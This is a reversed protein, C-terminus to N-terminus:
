DNGGFYVGGLILKQSRIINNYTKVNNNYLITFYILCIIMFLSLYAFSLELYGIQVNNIVLIEVNVSATYFVGILAYGSGIVFFLIKLKKTINKLNELCQEANKIDKIGENYYDKIEKIWKFDDYDEDKTKKFIKSLKKSVNENELNDIVNEPYSYFTDVIRSLLLALTSLGINLPGFWMLM